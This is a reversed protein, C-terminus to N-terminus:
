RESLSAALAHFRNKRPSMDHKDSASSSLTPVCRCFYGITVASGSLWHCGLNVLFTGGFCGVLSFRKHVLTM